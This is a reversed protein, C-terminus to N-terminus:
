GLINNFVSLEEETLERDVIGEYDSYEIEEVEGPELISLIGYTGEKVENYVKQCDTLNGQFLVIETNKVVQYENSNNIYKSLM